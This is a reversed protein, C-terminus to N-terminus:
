GCPRHRDAAGGPGDGLLFAVLQRQLGVEGDLGDRGGAGGVVHALAFGYKM